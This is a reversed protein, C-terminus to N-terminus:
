SRLALRDIIATEDIAAEGAGFTVSAGNLRRAIFADSVAPDGHQALTAAALGLALREIARRARSEPIPATLLTEAEMAASRLASDGSAANRFESLLAERVDTERQLARLLDLAIVNGSGEWIANLPSQRFLRALPAEEIFGAGGLCEMAEAVVAPARKSVLYKAIPMGIRALAAEHPNDARDLAQALRFALAVAAEVDLALDALVARM